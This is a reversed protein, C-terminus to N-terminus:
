ETRNRFSTAPLPLLFPCFPFSVPLFLYLFSVFLLFSLFATLRKEKKVERGETGSIDSDSFTLSWEYILGISVDNRRPM